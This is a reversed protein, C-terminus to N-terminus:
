AAITVTVGGASNDTRTVPIAGVNVQSMGDFGDGPLVTQAELTPTVTKTTLHMDETGTMSGEVGLITVGQRINTAIIKSQETTDISVKGSGDHYGQQITYQGTKTTITGTVAGRNPMSGTLKAGNVYATKTALIESASATADGTDADYTNTGTIQAGSKDHAKVGYALKDATVTDSTLDILTESGLVVKSVYQNAM